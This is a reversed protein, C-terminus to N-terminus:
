ASHQPSATDSPPTKTTDTAPQLPATTPPKDTASLTQNQQGPGNEKDKDRQPRADDLSPTSDTEAKRVFKRVIAVEAFYKKIRENPNTGFEEPEDLLRRYLDYYESEGHRFAQYREPVKLGRHFGLALAIHASITTLLWKSAPDNPDMAQTLFPMIASSFITWALCYYHFLENRKVVNKWYGLTGFIREYHRELRDIDKTGFDAASLSDKFDKKKNELKAKFVFALLVPGFSYIALFLYLVVLKGWISVQNRWVIVCIVIGALGLVGLLIVKSWYVVVEKLKVAEAKTQMTPEDDGM